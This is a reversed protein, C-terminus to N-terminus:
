SRHGAGDSENSPLQIVFKAGQGPQSTVVIRANHDEVIQHVVSLGLGTGDDKTSFFPDFIRPLDQAVIGPGDDAVHFEVRQRDNSQHVSLTVTGGVKLAQIANVTLNLLAQEMQLPDISVPPLSADLGTEIQVGAADAMPRLRTAVQGIIQNANVPQRQARRADAYSLLEQVLHEIRETEEEIVHATEDAGPARDLKLLQASARIIGLPNRIQHALGGALGGLASLREARRLEEGQEELRRLSTALEHATRSQAIQSARLRDITVGTIIAVIVFIVVVLLDNISDGPFAGWKFIIHPAFLLSAALAAVLGGWYGFRLAAYVIPLFYFYRYVAHSALLGPATSYHLYTISLLGIVIIAIATLDERTPRITENWLRMPAMGSDTRVAIM